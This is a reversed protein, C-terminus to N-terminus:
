VSKEIFVLLHKQPGGKPEGSNLSWKGRRCAKVSKYKQEHFTRKAWGTYLLCRSYVMYSGYGITFLQFQFTSLRLQHSLGCQEGRRTDFLHAHQEAYVSFDEYPSKIKGEIKWKRLKARNYRKTERAHNENITLTYTNCPYVYQIVRASSSLLLLLLVLFRKRRTHIKNNNNSSENRKAIATSLTFTYESIKKGRIEIWMEDTKRWGLMYVMSMRNRCPMCYM